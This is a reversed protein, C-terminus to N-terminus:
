KFITFLFMKLEKAYKYYDISLSCPFHVMVLTNTSFATLPKLIHARHKTVFFLIKIM